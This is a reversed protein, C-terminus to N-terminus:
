RLFMMWVKYPDCPQGDCKVCLVFMFTLYKTSSFNNSSVILYHKRYLKYTERPLTNNSVWIGTQTGRETECTSNATRCIDENAYMKWDPVPTFLPKWGGLVCEWATRGHLHSQQFNIPQGTAQFLSPLLLSLRTWESCFFQPPFFSWFNFFVAHFACNGYHVSKVINLVRDWKLEKYTIAESEKAAPQSVLLLLM